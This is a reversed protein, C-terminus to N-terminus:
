LYEIMESFLNRWDKWEETEALSQNHWLSVFTGDVNKIEDIISKISSLSEAPSSRLYYIFSSEMVALPHLTIDLIRNDLLDFYKFPLSTGARFGPCDAFGMSYDDKIGLENLIRYTKPLDIKLYHMRSLSCVKGTIQELRMREMELKSQHNSAKYSPHIGIEAFDGTFEILDKLENSDFNIQRDYKSWNGLHFFYIADLGKNVIIEKQFQYTDYPDDMENSLVARQEALFSFNGKLLNKLLTANRRLFSRGRYAYAVDIDFTCKYSFQRKASVDIGSEKDIRNVFEIAWHDVMPKNLLEAKSSISHKALFRNHEDRDQNQYEEYRSLFYFISSLPDDSYLEPLEKNLNFEPIGIRIDNEFLLGEPEVHICDALKNGSYNVRIGSHSLFLDLNTIIIMEENLFHDNLFGITYNLRESVQTTYLLM